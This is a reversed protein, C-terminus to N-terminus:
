GNGPTRIKRFFPRWNSVFLSNTADLRVWYNYGMSVLLGVIQSGRGNDERFDHISAENLELWIFPNHFSITKKAGLLVKLEHKEVDIKLLSVTTFTFEDLTRTEVRELSSPFRAVGEELLRNNGMSSEFVQLSAIGTADSLALRHLQMEPVNRSLLNFNAKSPEFAAGTAGRSFFFHSHNGINAGVDVVFKPRCLLAVKVLNSLDYHSKTRRIEDSIYEGVPHLALSRVETPAVFM